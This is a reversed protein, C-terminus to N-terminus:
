LPSLVQYRWPTDDGVARCVLDVHSEIQALTTKCAGAVSQVKAGGFAMSKNDLAPLNEAPNPRCNSDQFSKSSSLSAISCSTPASNEGAMTNSMGYNSSSYVKFNVQRSSTSVPESLPLNVNELRDCEDDSDDEPLQELDIVKKRTSSNTNKSDLKIVIGADKQQKSLDEIDKITKEFDPCPRVKVSKLSETVAM